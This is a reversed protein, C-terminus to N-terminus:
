NKAQQRTGNGSAPGEVVPAVNVPQGAEVQKLKQQLQLRLQKLDERETNGAQGLREQSRKWQAVAEDERGLRYLADGLHDLVVPDPFTAPAIAAQLHQLAEEFKGRKYLVWGLSDLFSQNDPEARVAVRILEEARDLNRGKDAWNYGLDNSAPAHTPDLKVVEALVTETTQEQGIRTYLHAVYYLLDPDGAVAARAGDLVRTAEAGRKQSRYVELLYEVAARNDPRKTREAELKAIFEELKGTRAYLEHM